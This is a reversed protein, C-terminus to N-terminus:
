VSSLRLPTVETCNDLPFWVSCLYGLSFRSMQTEYLVPWVSISVVKVVFAFSAEYFLYCEVEIPKYFYM